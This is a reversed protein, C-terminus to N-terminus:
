TAEVGAIDSGSWSCSKWNMMRWSTKFCSELGKRPHLGKIDQLQGRSPLSELTEGSKTVEFHRPRPPCAHLFKWTVFRMSCGDLFACHIDLGLSFEGIMMM